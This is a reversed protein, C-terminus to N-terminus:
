GDVPEKAGAPLATAATPESASASTPKTPPPGGSQSKLVRRLVEDRAGFDKVQGNGIVLLKNLSSLTSPRHAIVIAIGGRRRVGVIAHTLANEGHQDLNANPEDLVVLFPNRFLARALAIRQRQGGSLSAGSEGIQMQYGGDLQVIMEHCGAAAAAAIIEADTASPDFRAINNAVTGDFLEIDQPLYGVHRGLTVKPWQDIAAGDLRVSSLPSSPAWVGVLARALTSKGSATPGIIGLGDGTSVAFDIGKLMPQRAGPPTVFMKNVQLSQHPPPLSVQAHPPAVADEKAFQAVLRHYSQRAGIFSRWHAIASDLPALARSMTISGAIITGASVEGSIALYAGLGLIGSQLLLRVVKALTSMLTAADSARVQQDLFRANVDNWRDSLHGGMGLAQIAEGNRRAMEALGLRERHSAAAAVMPTKSRFESIATIIILLLAGFLSFLGLMPHLLYIIVLFLPIWPLDFLAPPGMGSLFTRIQDLDRIPQLSPDARQAPSAGSHVMSFIRSSVLQDFRLGVRSMLRVRVYDLLGFAAYLGAMLITLGILTAVSSSPLVRDYVQLMYFAGTLALLNLVGSFAGVAIMIASQQKLASAIENSGKRTRATM